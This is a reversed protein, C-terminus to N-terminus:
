RSTQSHTPRNRHSAMRSPETEVEGIHHLKPFQHINLHPSGLLEVVNLCGPYKSETNCPRRHRPEFDGFVKFKGPSIQTLDDEMARYEDSSEITDEERPFTV